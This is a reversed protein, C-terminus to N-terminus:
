SRKSLFTRALNRRAINALEPSIEVGAIKKFPFHAMALMARGKGCGIDIISSNPILELGSLVHNVDFSSGRHAHSRRSDLGLDSTSCISFDFYTTHLLQDLRVLVERWGRKTLMAYVNSVKAPMMVSISSNRVM